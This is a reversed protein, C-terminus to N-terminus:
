VSHQFLDHFMIKKAEDPDAGLERAIYMAGMAMGGTKGMANRVVDDVIQAAKEQFEPHRRVLECLTLFNMVADNLDVFWFENAPDGTADRTRDKYYGFWADYQEQTPYLPLCPAQAHLEDVTTM